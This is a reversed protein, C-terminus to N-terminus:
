RWAPATVPAPLAEAARALELEAEEPQLPTELIIPIEEPILHSVERFAHIAGFSLRNHRNHSSVESLHVQHLRRGFARLLLFAETMTSDFQRAHGIDFCFRAEPLRAFVETLEPVSRGTAKRKDMNEILLLDQFVSWREPVHIADPHLVIPFRRAAARQLQRIVDPEEAPDFRSPAHVAVYSFGSLDLHDLTQMLPELEPLRLASLEVCTAPLDRLMALARRFDGGALAGTSFGFRRM